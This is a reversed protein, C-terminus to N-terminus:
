ALAGNRAKTASPECQNHRTGLLVEATATCIKPSTDVQDLMHVLCRLKDVAFARILALLPAFFEFILQPLPTRRRKPDQSHLVLLPGNVLWVRLVGPIPSRGPFCGSDCRNDVSDGVRSAWRSHGPPPGICSAQLPESCALPCAFSSRRHRRLCGAFAHRLCSSEKSASQFRSNRRAAHFDAVAQCSCGKRVEGQNNGQDVPIVQQLM